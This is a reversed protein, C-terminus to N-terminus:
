PNVAFADYPRTRQRVWNNELGAIAAFFADNIDKSPTDVELGATPDAITGGVADHDCTTSNPCLLMNFTSGNWSAAARYAIKLEPDNRVLHLAGTPSIPRWAVSLGPVSPDSLVVTTKAADLALQNGSEDAPTSAIFDPCARCPPNAVDKMGGFYASVSVGATATGGLRLAYSPDREDKVLSAALTVVAGPDKDPWPQCVHITGNSLYTTTINGVEDLWVAPGTASGARFRVDGLKFTDPDMSTTRAATGLGFWPLDGAPLGACNTLLASGSSLRLFACRLLSDM